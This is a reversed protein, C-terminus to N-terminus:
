LAGDRQDQNKIGQKVNRVAKEGGQWDGSRIQIVLASIEAGLFALELHCSVDKRAASTLHQYNVLKDRCDGQAM